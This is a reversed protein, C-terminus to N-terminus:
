QVATVCRLPNLSRFNRALVNENRLRHPLNTRSCVSERPEAGNIFKYANRHRSSQRAMCHWTAPLPMQGSRVLSGMRSLLDRKQEISYAEWNSFDVHRRANEVDKNILYSLPPVGSYWPWHTNASHCNQCSRPFLALTETDLKSGAFLPREQAPLRSPHAESLLILAPLLFFLLALLRLAQWSTV